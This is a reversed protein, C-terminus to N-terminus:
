ISTNKVLRGHVYSYEGSVHVFRTMNELTIANSKLMILEKGMKDRPIKDESVSLIDESQIYVGVYAENEKNEKHKLLYKADAEDTYIPRSVTHRPLNALIREWSPIQRGSASYLSIFVEQQGQGLSAKKTLEMIKSTPQESELYERLEAQINHLNKGIARLFNTEEWPGKQIAEDLANLIKQVKQESLNNKM